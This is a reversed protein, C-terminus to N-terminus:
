GGGPRPSWRSCVCCLGASCLRGAELKRLEKETLRRDKPQYKACIEDMKVDEFRLHCHGDKIALKMAANYTIVEKKITHHSAGEELRTDVYAQRDKREITNVDTNKGLLRILHGSLLAM